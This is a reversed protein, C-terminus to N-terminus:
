RSRTLLAPDIGLEGLKSNLDGMFRLGDTWYGATPKLDPLHTRWYANFRHMLTERFYKALMSAVAVSICHDEAKEAFLITASRDARTLRYEWRTASEAVVELHWEEFMQRLLPGYRERGGQRDCVIVLRRDSFTQLLHEIHRAVFTFSTAGKNRTAAFMENLRSEPVVHAHLHAVAVKARTMEHRLANTSLKLSLSEVEIPFREDVPGLYWAARRLAECSDAACCELLRDLSAVEGHRTAVLCLVARELEGLGASPSYVKKSDNVHIRKGSGDRTRSVARRLLKWGDPIQGDSLQGDAIPEASSSDGVIDPCEFAACAVVLPGLIPGYGAEDIGAVIM